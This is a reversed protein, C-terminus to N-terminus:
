YSNKGKFHGGSIENNLYYPCFNDTAYEVEADIVHHM